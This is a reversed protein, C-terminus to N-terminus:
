AISPTIETRGPFIPLADEMAEKFEGNIESFASITTKRLTLGEESV